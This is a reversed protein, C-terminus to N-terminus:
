KWRFEKVEVKFTAGDQAPKGFFAVAFPIDSSPIAPGASAPQSTLLADIDRGAQRTFESTDPVIGAYALRSELAKGARDYVRAEVLISEVPRPTIKKIRGRIVLVSGENEHTLIEYALGKEPIAFFPGRELVAQAPKHRMGELFPLRDQFFWLAAMGISLIAIAGLAITFVSRHRAEQPAPLDEEGAIESGAGLISDIERMVSDSPAEPAEPIQEQEPSLEEESTETIERATEERSPEEGPAPKDINQSSSLLSNFEEELSTEPEITYPFVHACISCRMKVVSRASGEPSFRYKSHCNPCTVIIM